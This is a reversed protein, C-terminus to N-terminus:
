IFWHITKINRRTHCPKGLKCADNLLWQLKRGEVTDAVAQVKSLAREENIAITPVVGKGELDTKTIAHEIRSFPVFGVFGNGLAFSRTAHAGGRTTDGVVVAKLLHQLNYALGEAASFTQESTLIYVPMKLHLGNTVEPRNVVWDERWSNTIRNFVRGTFQPKNFFYSAIENAMESRGGFNNRLDIIVADANAVFQM